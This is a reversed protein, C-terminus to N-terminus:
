CIHEVSHGKCLRRHCQACVMSTHKQEKAPVKRAVCDQCRGRGVRVSQGSVCNVQSPPVSYSSPVVIALGSTCTSPVSLILELRFYKVGVSTCNHKHLLYANNVTIDLFYFLTQVLLAKM